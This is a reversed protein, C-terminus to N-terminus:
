KHHKLYFSAEVLEMSIVITIDPLPPSPPIGEMYSLCFGMAMNSAQTKVQWIKIQWMNIIMAKLFVWKHYSLEWIKNCHKTFVVFYIFKYTIEIM